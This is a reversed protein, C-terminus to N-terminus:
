VDPIVAFPQHPVFKSKEHCIEVWKPKVFVLDPNDSIADYFNDDWKSSTVVYKVKDNMYDELEGAYATIYRVMCRRTTAEMNGYIFFHKDAFFDPLEPFGSDADSDGGAMGSTGPKEDEDTDVDYMEDEGVNPKTVKNTDPKKTGGEKIRRIEEDTDEGSDTDGGYMADNDDDDDDVASKSTSPAPVQKKSEKSPAPKKTSTIIETDSDEDPSEADGLRYNRWPLLKKQKYCDNIWKKDVIRGKGSVQQYKPTNVFACILHTCGKGWDPKYTAGMAVARDRLEARYPNQYGSMVFVVKDMLKRFEKVPSEKPPESKTKKLPPQKMSHGSDKSAVSSMSTSQKHLAPKPEVDEDTDDDDSVDHKRKEGKPTAPKKEPKPTAPKKETKPTQKKEPKPTQKKEEKVNNTSTKSDTSTSPKNEELVRSAARMAAAGAVPPPPTISETKGRNSFLNGPKVDDTNDSKVNFFGIKKSPEVEKKDAGGPGHFKIFSLGFTSTKNFPQTCVVKVRDWKQGVVTASLKSSDFMRVSNRNTGNRAEMPTMFSSAVLLVQYDKDSSATSKGVLVEVFASGENGIDISHIETSKEFQIVISVSKEGATACKWKHTGEPRLINDAPHNKDESSCSVVHQLKIEPM